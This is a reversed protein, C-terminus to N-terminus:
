WEERATSAERGVARQRHLSSFHRLSSADRRFHGHQWLYELRKAQRERDLLRNHVHYRLIGYEDFILTGGGHLRVPTDAPMGEPRQIRYSWLEGADLILTQVHEAVVEQVVFGDPGVRVSPRVSIIRSYAEDSIDLGEPSRNEWIFRFVENPESRMSEFHTSSHDLGEPAPWWLGGPYPSAPKIGYAAFSTLLRKRLEYKHDDPRVTTDSTLAASLFDGFEVHVPPTYDLARIALTLLTDAIEAGDEVVRDRSLYGRRQDGLGKIRAVWADLFANMVAAVLIEGRRHPERFDPDSEYYSKSPPQLEEVSRRLASGRVVSLESGMQEALGLLGSKRLSERSLVKRAILERGRASKEPPFGLDIVRNAVDRLSFVSLLAVIDSFGEHFAAQDASSPDTFRARLGDLLAHTAEHVVVDHSLCTYIMGGDRSSPFYGFLLARDQPSYFANADAFAHPLVTLQHGGFDWSVRRGLALEFRALTRMVLAYVNQCHFHPDALLQRDTKRLYVDAEPDLKCPRYLVDRSADYDVVQVRYGEPGARLAEIPVEVQTRIIQSRRPANPDRLAPDQAIVTFRRTRTSLSGPM